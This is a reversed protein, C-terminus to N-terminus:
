AEKAVEKEVEPVVTPQAFGAIWRRCMIFMDAEAGKIDVRKMFELTAVALQQETIENM